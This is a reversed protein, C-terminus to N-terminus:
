NNNNTFSVDLFIQDKRCASLFKGMRYRLTETMDSTESNVLNEVNSQLTRFLHSSKKKRKNKARIYSLNLKQTQSSLDQIFTKEELSLNCIQLALDLDDPDDNLDNHNMHKTSPGIHLLRTKKQLKSVGLTPRMKRQHHAVHGTQIEVLRAVFEGDLPKFEQRKPLAYPYCSDKIKPCQHKLYDINKSKNKPNPPTSRKIPADDTKLSVNKLSKSIFEDAPEWSTIWSQNIGYEPDSASINLLVRRMNPPKSYIDKENKRNYYSRTFYRDDVYLDDKAEIKENKIVNKSSDNSDQIDFTYICDGTKRNLRPINKKNEMTDMTDMTHPVPPIFLTSNVPKDNNVKVNNSQPIYPMILEEHLKKSHIMAGQSVKSKRGIEYKEADKRMMLLKETTITPLNNSESNINNNSRIFHHLTSRNGSMGALLLPSLRVITQCENPWSLKATNTSNNHQQSM